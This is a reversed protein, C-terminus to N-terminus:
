AASVKRHAYDIDKRLDAGVKDKRIIGKVIIRMTMMRAYIQVLRIRAYLAMFKNHASDIDKSLGKEICWTPIRAYIQVLRITRMTSTRAYAARGATAAAPSSSWTTGTRLGSM